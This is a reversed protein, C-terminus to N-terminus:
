LRSIFEGLKDGSYADNIYSLIDFALLNKDKKELDIVEGNKSIIITKADRKNMSDDILNGVILDLNKSKLKKRANEILNESEAAFGVVFNVKNIGIKKLIDESKHLELQLTEQDKKLKHGSLKPIFDSIAAASIYIDHVQIHKEIAKQMEAHNIAEIQKISNSVSVSCNGKILTVDASLVYAAEALSIGMLGSSLNTIARAPDIKEITGGASILIKKDKLLANSTYKKIDLMLDELEILRGLGYEGCAQEGMDPGSLLVGDKELLKLNRQTAPNNWMEVNMAPAILLPCNRALCLNSLLDDAMGNALKAMFNASAPAIVILDATRSLNIHEMGNGESPEWMNELVPNGSLAQLTIPSIFEKASQTMVVQVFFNSKRLLRILEAAKYASISGTVGLIIKKNVIQM